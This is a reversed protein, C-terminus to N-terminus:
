NQLEATVTQVKSAGTTGGGTLAIETWYVNTGSSLKPMPPGGQIPTLRAYTGDGICPAFSGSFSGIYNAAGTALATNYTTRDGTSFTPAARWLDIQISQGCWGTSTADNITVVLANVAASGGSNAIVFSPVTISGATANNAVLQNPLYATTSSTLTLTSTPNTNASTNPTPQLVTIQGSSNVGVCNAPTAPDCFLIQPYLVSSINKAGFTTGAGQTATYNQAFAPASWLFLGLLLLALKGRM